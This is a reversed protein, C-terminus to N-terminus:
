VTALTGVEWGDVSWKSVPEDAIYVDGTGDFWVASTKVPTAYQGGELTASSFVNTLATFTETTAISNGDTGVLDYSVVADNTAFDAISVNEIATNIGDTGNVAAVINAQATALDTGISIDGDNAETGDTVFLFAKTGITMTDLNTPQTDVTLTSTAAVANVPTATGFWKKEEFVYYKSM